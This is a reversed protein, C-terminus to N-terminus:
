PSAESAARAADLYFALRAVTWGRRQLKTALKSSVPDCRLTVRRGPEEPGLAAGAVTRGLGRGRYEHRVYAFHLTAASPEAVAWAVIRDVPWEGEPGYPRMEVGVRVVVGPRRLIRAVAAAVREHTITEREEPALKARASKSWSDLIFSTDLATPARLKM